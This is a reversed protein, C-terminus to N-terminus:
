STSELPINNVMSTQISALPIEQDRAREGGGVAEYWNAKQLNAEGRKLDGDPVLAGRFTAHM